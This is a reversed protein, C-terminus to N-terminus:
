LEKIFSEELLRYGKREYYRSLDCFDPKCGVAIRKIGRLKAESELADLLKFGAYGPHCYFAMEQLIPEESFFPETIFGFIFGQIMGEVELVIVIANPSEILGKASEWIKGLSPPFTHVVESKEAFELGLTALDDVDTSCALRIM